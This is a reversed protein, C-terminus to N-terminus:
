SLYAWEIFFVTKIATCMNPKEWLDNNDSSFRKDGDERSEGSGDYGGV